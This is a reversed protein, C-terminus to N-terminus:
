EDEDDGKGNTLEFLTEDVIINGEDFLNTLTENMYFDGKMCFLCRNIGSGIVNNLKYDGPNHSIYGPM